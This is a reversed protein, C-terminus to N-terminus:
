GRGGGSPWPGFIGGEALGDVAGEVTRQSVERPTDPAAELTRLGPQGRKLARLQLSSRAETSPSSPVPNEGQLRAAQQRVTPREFLLRLPLHLGERELREQLKVVLLSNGGLSFFNDDPGVAEIGLVGAWCSLLTQILASDASPRSREEVSMTMLQQLQLNDRKGAVTLPLADVKLLRHPLLHPPLLDTLADLLGAEDAARPEAVVAAALELREAVRVSDVHAARVGPLSLLAAEVEGPEIRHGRLKLQRDLRGLYELRGAASLQVRDGTRYIRGLQGGAEVFREQSVEDGGEYGLALGQGGLCLEGPVGEPVPELHEDLIHGTTGALPRGLSVPSSGDSVEEATAWITCETPGYLNFIRASTLSRLRPLLDDPFPEGGVLLARLGRLLSVGRPSELLLRLLSPTCQLLTVSRTPSLASSRAHVPQELRRKVELLPELASVVQAPELGFDVLCALEDIGLAQLARCREVVTGVDGFLGYEQLIRRAGARARDEILPSWEEAPYEGEDGVSQQALRMGGELYRALAREVAVGPVDTSVLTHVLLSV